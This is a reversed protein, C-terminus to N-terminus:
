NKFLDESQLGPLNPVQGWVWLATGAEAKRITPNSTHAGVGPNKLTEIQCGSTNEVPKRHHSDGASIKALIQCNRQSSDKFCYKRMLPCTRQLPEYNSSQWSGPIHVPKFDGCGHKVAKSEIDVQWFHTNYNTDPTNGWCQSDFVLRKRICPLYEMVSSCGLAEITGM